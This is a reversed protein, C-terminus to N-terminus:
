SLDLVQKSIERFFTASCNISLDQNNNYIDDIIDPNQIIKKPFSIMNLDLEPVKLILPYMGVNDYVKQMSQEFLVKIESVQALENDYTELLVMNGLLFWCFYLPYYWSSPPKFMVKEFDVRDISMRTYRNGELAFVTQPKNKTCSNFYMRVLDSLDTPDNRKLVSRHLNFHYEHVFKEAISANTAIYALPKREYYGFSGDAINDYQICLNKKKSASVHPVKLYSRKEHNDSSFLDDKFSVYKLEYGLIKSGIHCAIDETRVSPLHRVLSLYTKQTGTVGFYEETVGSFNQIGYEKEVWADLIKSIEGRNKKREALAKELDTFTEVYFM